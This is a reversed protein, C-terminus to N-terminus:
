SKVVPRNLRDYLGQGEGDVEHNLRFGIAGTPHDTVTAGVMAPDPKNDGGNTLDYTVGGIIAIGRAPDVVVPQDAPVDRSDILGEILVYTMAIAAGVIAKTQDDTGSFLVTVLAAVAVLFKRSTLRVLFEKGVEGFKIENM